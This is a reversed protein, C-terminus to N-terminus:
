MTPDELTSIGNIVNEIEVVPTETITTPTAITESAPINTQQQTLGLIENIKNLDPEQMQEPAQSTIFINNLNPNTEGNQLRESKWENVQTNTFGLYDFLNTLQESTFGRTDGRQSFPHLKEFFHLAVYGNPNVATAVNSMMKAFDQEPCFPLAAFSYVLDYKDLHLNSFDQSQTNFNDKINNPLNQTLKDKIEYNIRSDIGTTNIGKSALYISDSFSGCGLDVATKFEGQHNNIFNVLQEKPPRGITGQHYSQWTNKPAPEVVPASEVVPAPKVFPRFLKKAM